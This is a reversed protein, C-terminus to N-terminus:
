LLAACKALAAETANHFAAEELKEISAEALPAGTRTIFDVGGASGKIETVDGAGGIRARGFQSRSIGQDEIILRCRVVAEDGERVRNTIEHRWSAGFRDNLFRIAESPAGGFEPAPPVDLAARKPPPAYSTAPRGTATPRKPPPVAADPRRPRDEGSKPIASGGYLGDLQKRGENLMEDFPSSLDSLGKTAM